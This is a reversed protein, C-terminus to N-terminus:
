KRKETEKKDIIAKMRERGREKAVKRTFQIM